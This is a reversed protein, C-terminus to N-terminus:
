ERKSANRRLTPSVARLSLLSPKPQASSSRLSGVSWITRVNTERSDFRDVTARHLTRTISDRENRQIEFRPRAREVIKDRRTNTCSRFIPAVVFAVYKPSSRLVCCTFGRCGGLRTIRAVHERTSRFLKDDIPVVFAIVLLNSIRKGIKKKKM